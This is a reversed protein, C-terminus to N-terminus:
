AANGELAKEIRNIVREALLPPNRFQVRDIPAAASRNNQLERKFAYTRELLNELKAKQEANVNTELKHNGPLSKGSKGSYYPM